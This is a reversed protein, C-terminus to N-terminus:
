KGSITGFKRYLKHVAICLLMTAAISPLTTGISLKLTILYRYFIFGLLWIGLNLYAFNQTHFDQKLLFFNTILVAAMPAFVSGIFLLFSEYERIPTFIALATGLICVIIAITRESLTNWISTASVGASHVDLLTTTTTSFLVVILGFTKLSSQLLIQGMDSQATFLAAGLGIIYMWSSGLLYVGVAVKTAREPHQANRTYDAVLPLWSLPMIASLEIALGFPMHGTGTYAIDGQFINISLLLTCLFLLGMAVINIKNVNKLGIFIWCFILAGLILGWLWDDLAVLAKATSMGTAIMVATWGVLQVINLTSFLISGKTGFAIKTTDMASKQTRAGIIGALYMLFGGIIHGIVIAALGKMLGLPAFLTGVLIEAISVSAGFWILAMTFTTSKTTQM